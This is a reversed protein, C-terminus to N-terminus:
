VFFRAAYEWSVRPVRLLVAAYHVEFGTHFPTNSHLRALKLLPSEPACLSDRPNM